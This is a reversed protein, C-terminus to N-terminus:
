VNILWYILLIYIIIPLVVCILVSNLIYNGGFRNFYNLFDVSKNFLKNAFNKFDKMLFFFLATALIFLIKFYQFAFIADLLCIWSFPIVVFYIIINIENYSLNLVDALKSLLNVVINFINNILGRM